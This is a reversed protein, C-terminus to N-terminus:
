GDAESAGADRRQNPHRPGRGFHSSEYFGGNTHENSFYEEAQKLTLERMNESGQYFASYWQMTQLLARHVEWQSRWGLHVFAKTVDLALRNTEHKTGDPVVRLEGSGAIDVLKKTVDGVSVWADVSPGFNWSGSIDTRGEALLKGLLLYGSLPELVHEWPRIAEPSRLTVIGNGEFIARIIDPVLRDESWDGGGIVNGARAIAILTSHETAYKEPNFYSHIYSQAVIDAAAKSASYPDYGGLADTERYPYVWERNEYVKDTTIIVVSRVSSVERICDLVNMTGIVNTSITEVPDRYSRRVIPQAALHFVIEPQADVIIKSLAARDRVDAICHHMVSELQLVDFLNPTSKPALAIGTVEAGWSSLLLSLWGGKFGTHGTILVRKGKYFNALPHNLM